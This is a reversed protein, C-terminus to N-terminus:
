NKIMKKPHRVGFLRLGESVDLTFDKGSGSVAGSLFAKKFRWATTYSVKFVKMIGELGTVFAPYRCDFEDLSFGCTDRGKPRSGKYVYQEPKEVGALRLCEVTDIIITNYQQAVADKILTSKLVFATCKSVDFIRMISKLGYTFQPFCSGPKVRTSVFSGIAM